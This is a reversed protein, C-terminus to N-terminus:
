GHCEQRDQLLLVRSVYEEAIETRQNEGRRVLGQWVLESEDLLDM